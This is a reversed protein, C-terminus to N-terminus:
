HSQSNTQHLIIQSLDSVKKITNQPPYSDITGITKFYWVFLRNAKIVATTLKSECCNCMVILKTACRSWGLSLPKRNPLSASYFYWCQHLIQPILSRDFLPLINIKVLCFVLNTRHQLINHVYTTWVCVRVSQYDKNSHTQIRAPHRCAPVLRHHDLAMLALLLLPSM